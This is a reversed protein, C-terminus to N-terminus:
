MNRAAVIFSGAFLAYVIVVWWGLVEMGAGMSLGIGVAIVSLLMSGTSVMVGVGVGIGVFMALVGYLANSSWELGEAAPVVLDAYPLGVIPSSAYPLSGILLVTSVSSSEITLFASDYLLSEVLLDTYPNLTTEFLGTIDEPAPYVIQIDGEGAPASLYSEITRLGGETVTTNINSGWTISGNQAAGQRDVLTTGSIITIPEYWVILVGGVTHKYYTMYSASNEGVLLWDNANDPASGGLLPETDLLITDVTLEIDVGDATVLITHYGSTVTGVVSLTPADLISATIEDIGSNYLRFSSVKDVLDRDDGASTDVYGEFEIEFNDGIEVAAADALTILGSGGPIFDFSTNAPSYLTEFRLAKQQYQTLDVVLGIRDSVVMYPLEASGDFVRSDLGSSGLLGNSVMGTINMTVLVPISSRATNSSDQVEVVARYVGAAWLGGVVVLLLLLNLLISTVLKRRM